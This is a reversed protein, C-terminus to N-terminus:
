LEALNSEILPSIKISNLKVREKSSPLTFDLPTFLQPDHVLFGNM